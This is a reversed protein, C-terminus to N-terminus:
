LKFFLNFTLLPLLGPSELLAIHNQFRACFGSVDLIGQHVPGISHLDCQGGRPCIQFNSTPDDPRIDCM